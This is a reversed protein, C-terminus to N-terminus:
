RILTIAELGLSMAGSNSFIYFINTEPDLSGGQWNAGGTVVPSILTGLPGPWTSPVPPTFLPGLKYNAAIRKAEANLEPTFDIFDSESM